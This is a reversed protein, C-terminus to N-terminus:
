AKLPLCIFFTTGEAESSKLSIKGGHAEVLGRVLTLGLGWGTTISVAASPARKNFEFITKQDEVSIPNGENHVSIEIEDHGLRRIGVKVPSSDSGYKVANTVLNEIVRRLAQCDWQGIIEQDGTFVLRNGHLSELDKLAAEIIDCLDCPKIDLTLKQGAKIRNADLLNRIMGEARDINDVIGKFKQTFQSDTNKRALMQASMKAISLPTMLDHSLTSVFKERIERERQLEQIVQELEKRRVVRDTVDFAYNFVGYPNGTQDNVRLFYFDFYYERVNNKKPEYIFWKMEHGLYPEGTELVSQILKMYPQDSFEPLAERFPKGLLERGEFISQYKPNVVEYVLDPGTWMAMAAPSLKFLTKLLQQNYRFNLESRKKM